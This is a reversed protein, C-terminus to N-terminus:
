SLGVFSDQVRIWRELVQGGKVTVVVGVSERLKLSQEIARVQEAKSVDRTTNLTEIILISVFDIGLNQLREPLSGFPGFITGRTPHQLHFFPLLSIQLPM